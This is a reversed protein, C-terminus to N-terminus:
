NDVPSNPKSGDFVLFVENSKMLGLRERALFELYQPDNLRNIEARLDEQQELLAANENELSHHLNQLEIMELVGNKGLVSLSGFGLFIVALGLFFYRRLKPGIPRRNKSPRHSHRERDM